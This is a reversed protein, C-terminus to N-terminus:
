QLTRGDMWRCSSLCLGALLLVKGSILALLVLCPPLTCTDKAVDVVGNRECEQSLYKDFDSTSNCIALVNCSTDKLKDSKLLAIDM